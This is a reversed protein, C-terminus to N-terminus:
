PTPAHFLQFGLLTAADRLRRDTAVIETEGSVIAAAVHLADFTRIVIPPRASYCRRVVDEFSARVADDVSILRCTGAHIEDDFLAVYKEAFGNGIAGDAEKRRVAVLFELRAFEASVAVDGREEAHRRFLGSNPEAVHLKILCATDWYSM